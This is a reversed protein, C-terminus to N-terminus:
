QTRIDHVYLHMNNLIEEEGENKLIEEEDKKLIEEEDEKKLIEEEVGEKLIDEDAKKLIEEKVVLALDQQGSKMLTMKEMNAIRFFPKKYVLVIPFFADEQEDKFGALQKTQHLATNILTKLLEYYLIEKSDCLDSYNEDDYDSLFSCRDQKVRNEQVLISM